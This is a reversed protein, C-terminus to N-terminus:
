PPDSPAGIVMQAATPGLGVSIIMPAETSTTPVSPGPYEKPPPGLYPRGEQALAIDTKGTELAAVKQRSPLKELPFRGGTFGRGKVPVLLSLLLRLVGVPALTPLSACVQNCLDL